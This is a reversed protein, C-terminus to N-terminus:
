AVREHRMVPGLCSLSLVCDKRIPKEAAPGVERIFYYRNEGDSKTEIEKTWLLLSAIADGVEDKGLKTEQVIEKQTRAGNRIAERVREVPALKSLAIVPIAPNPDTM